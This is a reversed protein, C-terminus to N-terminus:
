EAVSITASIARHQSLNTQSHVRYDRAAVHENAMIVDLKLHPFRQKAYFTAQVEADVDRLHSEFLMDLAHGQAMEVIRSFNSKRGRREEYPNRAEQLGSREVLKRM